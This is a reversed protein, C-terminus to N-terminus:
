YFETNTKMQGNINHLLAQKLWVHLWTNKFTSLYLVLVNSNQQTCTGTSWTFNSFYKLLTYTSKYTYLILVNVKLIINQEVTVSFHVIM